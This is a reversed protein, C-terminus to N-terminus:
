LPDWSIVGLCLAIIEALNSVCLIPAPASLRSAIDYEDLTLGSIETAIYIYIYVYIYIQGRQAAQLIKTGGSSIM